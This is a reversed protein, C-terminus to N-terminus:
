AMPYVFDYEDEEDEDDEDDEEELFKPRNLYNVGAQLAKNGAWNLAQAAMKQGEPSKAYNLAATGARKAASGVAAAGRRIASGAAAAGRKLGNWTNSLGWLGRGGMMM